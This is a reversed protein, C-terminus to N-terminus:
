NLTKERTVKLEINIVYPDCVDLSVSTGARFGTVTVGNNSNVSVSRHSIEVAM